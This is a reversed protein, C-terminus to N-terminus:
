PCYIYKPSEKDAHKEGPGVCREVSEKRDFGSMHEEEAFGERGM